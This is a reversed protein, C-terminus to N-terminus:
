KGKDGERLNLTFATNGEKPQAPASPTAQEAPGGGQEGGMEPPMGGQSMIMSDAESKAAMMAQQQAQQQAIILDASNAICKDVDVSVRMDVNMSDPETSEFNEMIRNLLRSSIDNAQVIYKKADSPAQPSTLVQVGGLAGTLYDKVLQYQMLMVERRMTMNWEESAVALDLNLYDRINGTPMEVSQPQGSEDTYEYTPQYQAMSELLKYGIENYFARARETWSKFKKNGEEGVVMSEKAVPREATSIGLSLQTIGCAQEMQTILWNVENVISFTIDPQPVIFIATAPDDDITKIKGPELEYNDLGIDKRAFMIPLNVLKMRDLMLNHLTDLEESMVEIIEGVGEGDYTYEVQSAGKLDAFPRYGYFIPNYIAKLIQGSERHFTIVIDDEEGDGDVDYRLWLEWLTYPETYTTKDLTQGASGARAETVEGAKTTTLKKVAEEDYIKKAAFTDLQSKRRDFSFGCIYADDISLADSSIVFRARDIPYVNPGRFVISPEKVVTEKTGPVRYKKVTTDLKDEESAYRYITKNKTEYVIKAVGTGSNVAQRTPFIMKEKLHLDNIVYNNFAKEWITIKDNIEKTGVGRAKMIYIRLKNWVTDHIRVFIADSIKRMVPISVDAMWPKPRAGRKEAKYLKHARKIKQIVGEQNKLEQDLTEKLHSSLTEGVTKGSKMRKKLNIPRGGTWDIVEGRILDEEVIPEGVPPMEGAQPVIPLLGDPQVPPQLMPDIPPPVMGMMEPPLSM